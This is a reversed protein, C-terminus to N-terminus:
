GQQAKEKLTADKPRLESPPFSILEMLNAVTASLSCM